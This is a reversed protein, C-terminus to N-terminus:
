EGNGAHKEAIRLRASRARPNRETEEDDAVIVKRNVPKLPSLLNGFFDKKLEGGANGSRFINKVLRDELSHYSIVVLRGGPALCQIAQLLWEELVVLEQNVEIRLAQFLQALTKNERGKPLLHNVATILAFTTEIENSKRATDIALAIKRAHDLEGFKKLITTLEEVTSQNVVERADRANNQDMRMDLRGDFRTSFGKDAVDFQFSSVGLDALIGDVEMVGHLTLFNRMFRFNQPIFVLRPDDVVNKAADQDQDFAFLRGSTLRKLIEAAHGGGGYTVDVYTGDPRIRLGDVSEHLLVPQHYM